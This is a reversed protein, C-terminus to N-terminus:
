SVLQVGRLVRDEDLRRTGRPLPLTGPKPQLTVLSTTLSHLQSGGRLINLCGVTPSHIVTYLQPGHEAILVRTVSTRITHHHYEGRCRSVREKDACVGLLM